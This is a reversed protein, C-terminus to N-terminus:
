KLKQKEEYTETGMFSLKLFNFIQGVKETVENVEM